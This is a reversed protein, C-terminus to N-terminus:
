RATAEPGSECVALRAANKRLRTFAEAIVVRMKVAHSQAEKMLREELNAWHADWQDPGAWDRLVEVPLPQVNGWAEFRELREIRLPLGPVSAARLAGRSRGHIWSRWDAGSKSQNCPGCSPIINRMESIYGTPRKRRVLPHLHDWDTASTGCYVCIIAAPDMELVQLAELIDAESPEIHPIIAQVFSNTITSTRSTIKLLQRYKM